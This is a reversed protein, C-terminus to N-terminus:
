NETRNIVPLNIEIDIDTIFNTGRCMSSHGCSYVLFFVAFGLSHDFCRCGDSLLPFEDFIVTQNTKADSISFFSPSWQFNRTFKACGITVSKVIM